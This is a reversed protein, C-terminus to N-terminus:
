KTVRLLKTPQTHGSVIHVDKIEVHFYSAVLERVRQNAKGETRNARVAVRLRGDRLETVGERKQNVETRIRIDM